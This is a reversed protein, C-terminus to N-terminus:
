DPLLSKMALIVIGLRGLKLMTFSGSRKIILEPPKDRLVVTLLKSLLTLASKVDILTLKSLLTLAVFVVTNFLKVALTM